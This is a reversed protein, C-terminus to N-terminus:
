RGSSPACMAACRTTPIIPARNTRIATAACTWACVVIATMCALVAYNWTDVNATLGPVFLIPKGAGTDRYHMRIGTELDIFPM